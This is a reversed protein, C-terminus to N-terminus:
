LEPPFAAAILPLKAPCQAKYVANLAEVGWAYADTNAALAEQDVGKCSHVAMAASCFGYLARLNNRIKLDLAQAFYKRSTILMDGNKTAVGETYLM